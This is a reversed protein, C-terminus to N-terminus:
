NIQEDSKDMNRLIKYGASVVKKSTDHATTNKIPYNELFNEHSIVNRIISEKNSKKSHLSNPCGSCLEFCGNLVKPIQTKKDLCKSLHSTNKHILCFGYEHPILQNFEPQTNKIFAEVESPDRYKLFKAQKKIFIAVPGTFDSTEDEDIMRGLLDKIYSEEISKLVEESLKNDTYKYTHMSEASHRFHRRIAEVVNGDFRRIAFEAFSHRFQHPLFVAPLDKFLESFKKVFSAHVIALRFRFCTATISTNSKKVSNNRSFDSLFFYRGFIPVKSNDERNTKKLYSLNVLLSAAEAVLGSMTRIESLGFNTKYLRSKFVWTGDLEKKYDDANISTVESARIGTLTLFIVLCADFIENCLDNMEKHSKFPFKSVPGITRRELAKKLSEYRDRSSKFKSLKGICHANFNNRHFISSPSVKLSTRQHKFYAELIKTKPSRIIDISESLLTMVIPFPIAEYSGGRKWSDFSINNSKLIDKLSTELFHKPLEITIGQSIKGLLYLGRSLHLVNYAQEVPGRGYIEKDHSTKKRSTLKSNCQIKKMLLDRIFEKCHSERWQTLPLEPLKKSGWVAINQAAQAWSKITSHKASIIQNENDSYGGCKNFLIQICWIKWTTSIEPLDFDRKFIRGTNTDTIYLTYEPSNVNLDLNNRFNKPNSNSRSKM